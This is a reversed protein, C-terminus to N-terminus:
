NEKRNEWEDATMTPKVMTKAKSLTIVGKDLMNHLTKEVKQYEDHTVDYRVYVYGHRSGRDRHYMTAGDRLSKGFMTVCVIEKAAEISIYGGYKSQRAAENMKDLIERAKQKM